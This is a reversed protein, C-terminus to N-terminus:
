RRLANPFEDLFAAPYGTFKGLAACMGRERPLLNLPQALGNTAALLDALRKGHAPFGGAFLDAFQTRRPTHPALEM